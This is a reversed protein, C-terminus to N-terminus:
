GMVGFLWLLRAALALVVAGGGVLYPWVWAEGPVERMTYNRRM